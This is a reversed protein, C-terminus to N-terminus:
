TRRRVGDIGRQSGHFCLGKEKWKRYEEETLLKYTTERKTAPMVNPAAATATRSNSALIVTRTPTTEPTKAM